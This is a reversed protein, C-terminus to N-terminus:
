CTKKSVLGTSEERLTSFDIKAAWEPAHGHILIEVMRRDAFVSKLFADHMSDGPQRSELSPSPHPRTSPQIPRSQPVHDGSHTATM